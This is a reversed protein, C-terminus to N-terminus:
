KVGTSSCVESRAQWWSRLSYDDIGHDCLDVHTANVIDVSNHKKKKKLTLQVFCIKVCKKSIEKNFGTYATLKSEFYKSLSDADGNSKDPIYVFDFNTLPSNDTYFAFAHGHLYGHIKESVISFHGSVVTM